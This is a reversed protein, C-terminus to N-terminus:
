FNKVTNVITRWQERNQGLHMWDVGEWWIERLRIRINDKWRRRHGGLKGIFNKYASRMERM